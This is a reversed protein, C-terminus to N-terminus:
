VEDTWVRFSELTNPGFTTVMAVDAADRGRAILVRGIRPMNNRPDFTYWRGGLYAEFCAAFDGPPFPRQMGVDGLYGTCYRAPINIARCFAIALHAYDRCVGVRETYGESATRTPRAKAYDFKIHNHLDGIRSHHVHLVLLCPTPQPFRYIFEYGVRLKLM